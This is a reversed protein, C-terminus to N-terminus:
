LKLVTFVLKDFTADFGIDNCRYRRGGSLEEVLMGSSYAQSELSRGIGSDWINYLSLIGDHSMCHCIVEPSATDAWVTVSSPAFEDDVLLGKDTKLWVGQRWPSAVSEFVVKIVQESAIPLVDWLVVDSRGHEVFAKNYIRKTVPSAM